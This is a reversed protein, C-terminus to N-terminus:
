GDCVLFRLRGRDRPWSLIAPRLVTQTGDKGKVQLSKANQFTAEGMFVTVSNGKLLQAVGGSMKGAGSQKWEAAEAHRNQDGGSHRFGMTPGDHQMRQYFHAATIM